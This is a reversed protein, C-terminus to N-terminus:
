PLRASVKLWSCCSRRQSMRLCSSEWCQRRPKYTLGAGPVRFIMGVISLVLMSLKPLPTSDLEGSTMTPIPAQEAGNGDGGFISPRRKSSFSLRSLMRRVASPPQQAQEEGEPDVVGFTRVPVNPRPSDEM